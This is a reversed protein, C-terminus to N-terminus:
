EDYDPAETALSDARYTHVTSATVRKLGFQRRKETLLREYMELRSTVEVQLWDTRFNPDRAIKAIIGEILVIVAEKYTATEAQIFAIEEDTYIANTSDTDGIHYRIRTLDTVTSVDYTFTM